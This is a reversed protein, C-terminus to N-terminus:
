RATGGAPASTTSARGVGRLGRSSRVSRQQTPRTSAALTRLSQSRARALEASLGLGYM